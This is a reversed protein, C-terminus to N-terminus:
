KKKGVTMKNALTNIKKSLADWEARKGAKNIAKDLIEGRNAIAHQRKEELANWKTEAEKKVAEKDADIKNIESTKAKYEDALGSTAISENAMKILAQRMGDLMYQESSVTDGKDAAQLPACSICFMIALAAIVIHKM